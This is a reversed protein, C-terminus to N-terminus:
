VVLTRVTKCYHPFFSARVIMIIISIIKDFKAEFIIALPTSCRAQQLFHGYNKMENIDLACLADNVVVNMVSKRQSSSISRALSSMFEPFLNNYFEKLKQVDVIDACSL